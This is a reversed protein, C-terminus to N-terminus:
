TAAPPLRVQMAPWDSIDGSAEIRGEKVLAQLRGALVIMDVRFFDNTNAAVAAYIVVSRAPRWELGVQALLTSDFSSLAISEIGNPGITRLPANEARLKHWIARREARMSASVLVEKGILHSAIAPSLHALRIAARESVKAHALQAADIRMTDIYYLDRQDHKCIIEFFGCLEYVSNPCVWCNIKADTRSLLNQFRAFRRPFVGWKGPSVHFNDVIWKARVVGELPNIPGFSLDDPFTLIEEERRHVALAHALTTKALDGFVINIVERSM